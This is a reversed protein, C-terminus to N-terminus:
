YSTLTLSYHTKGPLFASAKGQEWDSHGMGYYPSWPHGAQSTPMHFIGNEEFGPSVVMRQSAGFSQGQVKPMYSDGSLPTHPMDLWYQLWPLANSLPHKIATTNQQGWTADDLTQQSTMDNLTDNLANTFLLQWSPKGLLNDNNPQKNVLQWLPVEIQHRLSRFNFQEDIDKFEQSFQAFV